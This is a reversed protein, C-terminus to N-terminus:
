LSVYFNSVNIFHGLKYFTLTFIHWFLKIVKPAQRRFVKETITFETISYYLTYTV